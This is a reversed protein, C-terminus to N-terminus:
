YGLYEELRLLIREGEDRRYQSLYTCSELFDSLHQRYLFLGEKSPNKGGYPWENVARDLWELCVYAEYAEATEKQMNWRAYLFQRDLFSSQIWEVLSSVGAQLHPAVKKGWKHEYRTCEPVAEERWDAASILAGQWTYWHTVSAGFEDAEKYPLSRWAIPCKAFRVDRPFAYVLPRGRELRLYPTLGTYLMDCFNSM